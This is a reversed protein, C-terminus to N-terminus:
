YDYREEWPCFNQEGVIDKLGKDITERAYEIGVDAKADEHILKAVEDYRKRYADFFAQFRGPGLGFVDRAAFCAVDFCMQIATNSLARRDEKKAIIRELAPNM